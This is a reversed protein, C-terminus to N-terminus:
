TINQRMTKMDRCLLCLVCMFYLSSMKISLCVCPQLFYSLFFMYMAYLVNQGCQRSRMCVHSKMMRVFKIQLVIQVYVSTLDM